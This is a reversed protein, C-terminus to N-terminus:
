RLSSKHVNTLTFLPRQPQLGPATIASDLPTGTSAPTVPSSCHHPAAAVALATTGFNSPLLSSIGWTREKGGGAIKGTDEM